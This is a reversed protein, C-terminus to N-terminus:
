QLQVELHDPTALGGGDRRHAAIVTTQRGSPLTVRSGPPANVADLQCYVTSSSTVEDGGPARVMRTQEDVLCAVTVAAGYTPGYAGEGEYPEVAVEHRLLWGPLSVM